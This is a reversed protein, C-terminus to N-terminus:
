SLNLVRKQERGGNKWMCWRVAPVFEQAVELPKTLCVAPIVACIWYLGQMGQQSLTAVAERLCDGAHENFNTLRIYGLNDALMEAEVPNVEIFERTITFSLKEDNREVELVM